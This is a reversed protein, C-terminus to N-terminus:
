IDPYQANPWKRSVPMQKFILRVNGWLCNNILVDHENKSNMTLWNMIFVLVQLPDIFDTLFVGCKDAEDSRRCSKDLTISDLLM